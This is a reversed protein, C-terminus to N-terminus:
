PAPTARHVLAVVADAQEDKSTAEVDIVLDAVARILPGRVALQHEFLVLPDGDDLLPRHDKKVAKRAHYAASGALWVVLHAALAQRAADLEVVSAAPGIVAPDRSSLAELAIEAELEHLREIGEADAILAATQGFREQLIEDGDILPRGLRAAVRRGVSTKGGGMLGLLVVHRDVTM